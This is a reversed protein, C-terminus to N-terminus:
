GWNWYKFIFFNSVIKGLDFANIVKLEFTAIVLLFYKLHLCENIRFDINDFVLILIYNVNDYRNTAQM